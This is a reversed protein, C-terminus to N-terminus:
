QVDPKFWIYTDGGQDLEEESEEGGDPESEPVVNFAQQTCSVCLPGPEPPPSFSLDINFDLAPINDDQPGMMTDHPQDNGVELNVNGMPMGRDHLEEPTNLHNNNNVEDLSQNLINVLLGAHTDLFQLTLSQRCICHTMTSIKGQRIKREKIVHIRHTM